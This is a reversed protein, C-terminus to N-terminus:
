TKEPMTLFLSGVYSSVLLLFLFKTDELIESAARVVKRDGKEAISRVRSIIFRLIIRLLLAGLISIAIAIMWQEVPTGLSDM